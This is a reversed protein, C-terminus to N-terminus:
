YKKNKHPEIGDIGELRQFEMILKRSKEIEEKLRSISNDTIEDDVIPSVYETRRRAPSKDVNMTTMTQNVEKFVGAGNYGRQQSSM